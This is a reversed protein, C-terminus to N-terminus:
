CSRSGGTGRDAARDGDRGSVAGACRCPRSAYQSVPVAAGLRQAASSGGHGHASLQEPRRRLHLRPRGADPSLWRNELALLECVGTRYGLLMSEGHCNRERGCGQLTYGHLHETLWTRM